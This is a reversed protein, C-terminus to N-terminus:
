LLFSVEIERGQNNLIPNDVPASSNNILLNQITFNYVQIRYNEVKSVSNWNPRSLLKFVHNGSGLNVWINEQLFTGNHWMWSREVILDDDVYIRYKPLVTTSEEIWDQILQKHIDSDPRNIHVEFMLNVEAM